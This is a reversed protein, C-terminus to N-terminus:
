KKSGIFAFFAFLAMFGLGPGAVAYVSDIGAFTLGLVPIMIVCLILFALAYVLAGYTYAVAKFGFLVVESVVSPPEVIKKEENLPPMNFHTRGKCAANKRANEIAEEMAKKLAAEELAKGLLEGKEWTQRETERIDKWLAMEDQLAKRLHTMNKDWTRPVARHALHCYPKYGVQEGTQRSESGGKEIGSRSTDIASSKEHVATHWVRLDCADAILFFAVFLITQHRLNIFAM